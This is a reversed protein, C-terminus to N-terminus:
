RADEVVVTQRRIEPDVFEDAVDVARTSWSWVVAGEEGAQFWHWTNPALTIQDGASLRHEEWVTYTRWRHLPPRALLSDTAAGELCVSLEGWACRLTESKGPYAGLPPHRHQPLTQGPFLVILKVAIEATDLLTLIQAGTEELEGLGFDAVAIQALEEERLALGSRRLLQAARAQAARYASRTIM